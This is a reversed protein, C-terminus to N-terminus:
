FTFMQVYLIKCLKAEVFLLDARLINQWESDKISERVQWQQLHVQPKKSVLM